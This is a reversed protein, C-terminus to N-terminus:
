FRVRKSTKVTCSYSSLKSTRKSQPTPAPSSTPSCTVPTGTPSSTACTGSSAKSSISKSSVFRVPPCSPAPSVTPASTKSSVKTTAAPVAKKKNNAAARKKKAPVAKKKKAPAAKKKKVPAAKKKVPTAKKKVPTAKKKKAPVVKKKPAPAVKKKRNFTNTRKKRQALDRVGEEDSVTYGNSLTGDEPDYEKKLDKVYGEGVQQQEEVDVAAVQQTEQWACAKSTVLLAVSLQVIFSSIKM